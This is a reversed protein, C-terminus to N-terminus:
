EKGKEEDVKRTRTNKTKAITVPPSELVEEPVVFIMVIYAVVGLWIMTLLSVVVWGVRIIAVDIQWYKALGSCVGSVMKDTTSRYLKKPKSTIVPEGGGEKREKEKRLIHFIYLVGFLIILIPFFSEFAFPWFRFFPWDYRWYYNERALFILGFVVLIIGIILGANPPSKKESQPLDRHVPNDPMLILCALYAIAGLGQFLVTLVWVIRVVTVDVNFYDAVGACVGGIMRNVGSRYLKKDGANSTSKKAM